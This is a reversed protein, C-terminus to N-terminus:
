VLGSGDAHLIEFFYQLDWNGTIESAPITFSVEPKAAVELVQTAAAPDTPRYHLRM